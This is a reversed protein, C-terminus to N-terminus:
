RTLTSVPAIERRILFGDFLESSSLLYFKVFFCIFGCRGLLQCALLNPFLTSHPPTTTVPPPPTPPLTILLRLQPECRRRSYMVSLAGLVLSVRPGVHDPLRVVKVNQSWVIYGCIIVDPQLSRPWIDNTWRNTPRIRLRGTSRWEM